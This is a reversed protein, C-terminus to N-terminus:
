LCASNSNSVSDHTKQIRDRSLNNKNSIVTDGSVINILKRAVFSQFDFALTQDKNCSHVPEQRPHRTTGRWRVPKVCFHARSALRAESSQRGFFSTTNVCFLFLIIKCIYQLQSTTQLGKRSHVARFKCILLYRNNHRAVINHLLAHSSHSVHLWSYRTALTMRTAFWDADPALFALPCLFQDRPTKSHHFNHKWNSKIIYYYRYCRLTCSAQYVEPGRTSSSFNQRAPCAASSLIM